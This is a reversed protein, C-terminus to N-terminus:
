TIMNPRVMANGISNSPINAMPLPLFNPLMYKPMVKITTHAHIVMTKLPIYPIHAVAMAKPLVESGTPKKLPAM